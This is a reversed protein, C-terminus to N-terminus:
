AFQSKLRSLHSQRVLREQEIKGNRGYGSSAKSDPSTAQGFNMLNLFTGQPPPEVITLPFETQPERDIRWVPSKGMGHM